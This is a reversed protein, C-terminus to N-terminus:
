PKLLKTIEGYESSKGKASWGLFYVPDKVYATNNMTGKTFSLVDKQGPKTLIIPAGLRGQLMGDVLADPFHEDTGDAYAASSYSGMEIRTFYNAIALSTKYRNSGALRDYHSNSKQTNSLCSDKVTSSSGLLICWGFKGILEKTSASVTGNKALLIPIHLGYSWPSFALADAPTQGTAVAVPWDMDWLNEKIGAKCVEEATKYRNKGAIHKITTVGCSKLATEVAKDFGGGIITVTKVSKGWTKTLLDKTPAPLEKLKSMLIPAGKAGAYANAALADPFKEGTVLIAESPGTPFAEKAIAAATKYRNGGAVSIFRSVKVDYSAGSSATTLEYVPGEKAASYFQTASITTKILQTEGYKEPNLKVRIEFSGIKNFTAPLVEYDSKPLTKGDVKVTVKSADVKSGYDVPQGSYTIEANIVADPLLGEEPATVGRGTLYAKYAQYNSGGSTYVKLVDSPIAVMTNQQDYCTITPDEPHGTEIQPDGMMLITLDHSVGNTVMFADDEVLTLGEPLCVSAGNGCNKFAAWSVTKLSDPLSVEELSRCGDFMFSGLSTAGEEVVAKKLNIDNQFAFADYEVGKMVVAEELGTLAFAFKGVTKLAEPYDLTVKELAIDGYFAQRPINEVPYKINITKVTPLQQFVSASGLTYGLGGYINLTEIQTTGPNPKFGFIEEATGRLSIQNSSNYTLDAFLPGPSSYSANTLEEPYWNVTKLKSNFCFAGGPIRKLTAPITLETMATNALGRHYVEEVNSGKLVDNALKTCNEFARTQIKKVNPGLTVKTLNPCGYFASFGINEVDVDLESIGAGAFPATGSSDTGITGHKIELKTGPAFALAFAYDRTNEVKSFDFGKLSKCGYFTLPGIEGITDAQINVTTLKDCGFFACVTLARNYNTPTISKELNKPLNVETVSSGAFAWMGIFELSQPLTVKKIKQCGVLAGALVCVTGEKVTLDGSYAPDVRVLCKGAYYCGNTYHGSIYSPIADLAADVDPVTGMIESTYEYPIGLTATTQGDKAKRWSYSNGCIGRITDPFTMSKIRGVDSAAVAQYYEDKAVDIETITYEVQTGPHTVTEPIVVDVGSADVGFYLRAAVTKDEESTVRCYLYYGLEFPTPYWAFDYGDGPETMLPNEADQEKLPADAEDPLAESSADETAEGVAIDDTLAPDSSPNAASPAQGETSAASSTEAAAPDASVSGAPNTSESGAPDAIESGAQDASKTGAPNALEAGTPEAAAGSAPNAAEGVAAAAATEEPAADDAAEESSMVGGDAAPAAFAPLSAFMTVACILAIARLTKHKM